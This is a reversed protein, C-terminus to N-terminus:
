ENSSSAGSAKANKIKQHSEKMNALAEKAANQEAEKKSKGEGSGIVKNGLIAHAVFTKDHDAGTEEAIRYHPTKRKKAQIVEQLLSKFDRRYDDRDVRAFYPKLVQRIVRRSTRIGQDLYIAAVLAEFADSLISNRERGGATEEAASMEIADNLCIDRAVCALVHESALYAKARAMEGEKHEPYHSFLYDCITMGVISDGLFEMRENCAFADESSASRHRLAQHLLEPKKFVVGINEQLKRIAEERNM